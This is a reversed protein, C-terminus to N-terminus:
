ASLSFLILPFIDVGKPSFFAFLIEELDKHENHASISYSMIPFSLIHFSPKGEMSAYQSHKSSSKGNRKRCQEDVAVQWFETWLAILINRIARM